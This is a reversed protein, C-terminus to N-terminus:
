PIRDWAIAGSSVPYFTCTSVIGDDRSYATITAPGDIFADEFNIYVNLNAYLNDLLFYLRAFFKPFSGDFIESYDKWSTITIEPATIFRELSLSKDFLLISGAEENSTSTVILSDNRIIWDNTYIENPRWYVSDSIIFKSSSFDTIREAIRYTNDFVDIVEIELTDGTYIFENNPAGDIFAFGFSFAFRFTQGVELFDFNMRISSTTIEEEEFTDSSCSFCILATFLYLLKKM